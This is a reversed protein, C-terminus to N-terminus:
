DESLSSSYGLELLLAWVARRCGTEPDHILGLRGFNVKVVEGPPTEEKRVTVKNPRQWNRMQPFRRLSQYSVQFGRGLLLEHILTLQLRDESLWQYIQDGWPM